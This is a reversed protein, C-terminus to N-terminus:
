LPVDKQKGAILGFCGVANGEVDVFVEGSVNVSVNFGDPRIKGLCISM